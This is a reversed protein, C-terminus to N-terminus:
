AIVGLTLIFVLMPESIISTTATALMTLVLTLRTMTLMARLLIMIVAMVGM